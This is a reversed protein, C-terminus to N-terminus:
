KNWPLISLLNALGCWETIGAFVLGAGVFIPIVVFVPNITFSLVAGAVIVSGAVIQVQRMISMPQDEIITPLKEDKWSLMGGKLSVVDLDPNEGKLKLYAKDSRGGSRCQVVIKKGASDIQSLNLIKLPINKAGKIHEKAFEDTDRVDILYVEDNQLMENLQVPTITQVDSKKEEEAFGVGVSMLAAFMMWMLSSIKYKRIINM